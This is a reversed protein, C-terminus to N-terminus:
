PEKSVREMAQGCLLTELCVHLPQVLHHVLRGERAALTVVLVLLEEKGETEEM